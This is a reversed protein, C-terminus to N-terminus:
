VDSYISQVNHMTLVISHFLRRLTSEVTRRRWNIKQRIKEMKVDKEEISVYGRFRLKRHEM